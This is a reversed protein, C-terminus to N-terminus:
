ETPNFAKEILKKDSREELKLVVQNSIRGVQVKLSPQGKGLSYDESNNVKNMKNRYSLAISLGSIFLLGSAGFSDFIMVTIRHFWIYESKLWWDILHTLVIWFMCLGRFVDISKLRQVKM